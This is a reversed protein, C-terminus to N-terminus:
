VSGGSTSWLVPVGLLGWSLVLYLKLILIQLMETKLNSLM